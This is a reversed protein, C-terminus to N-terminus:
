NKDIKVLKTQDYFIFDYFKFLIESPNNEMKFSKTHYFIEQKVMDFKGFGVQFSYTTIEYQNWLSCDETCDNSNEM